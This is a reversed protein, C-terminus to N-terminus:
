GHRRIELGKGEVRYGLGELVGLVSSGLVSSGLVSSGLGQPPTPAAFAGAFWRQVPASFRELADSM